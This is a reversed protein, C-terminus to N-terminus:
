TTEIVCLLDRVEVVDGSDGQLDRIVGAQPATIVQRAKEAEIEVLHGDVGTLAVAWTRATRM